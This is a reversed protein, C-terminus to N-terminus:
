YVKFNNEEEIKEEMIMKIAKRIMIRFPRIECLKCFVYVTIIMELINYLVDIIINYDM